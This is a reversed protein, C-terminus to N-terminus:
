RFHVAVWVTAQQPDTWVIRHRRHAAIYIYDGRVLSRVEPEDEFPEKEFLLRAGGSILIVWENWDQDYWFDSPSSQGTSVIREIRVDPQTLIESVLEEALSGAPLAAFINGDTTM